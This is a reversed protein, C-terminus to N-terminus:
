SAATTGSTLICTLDVQSGAVMAVVLNGGSSNVTVVGTSNNVIRYQHGLVLTSTVPLTVTQTTVGTFFQNRTSAVTLTTTGAATATTTYQKDYILNAAEAPLVIGLHKTGASFTVQSGTSSEILRVYTLTGAGSDYTYEAVMVEAVTQNEIRVHVTAGNAVSAGTFTRWAGPPGSVATGSLTITSTTTGTWLERCCDVYTPNAM